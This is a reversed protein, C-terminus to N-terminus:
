ESAEPLSIQQLVAKGKGKDEERNELAKEFKVYQESHKVKLHQVVNTYHQVDKTNCGGHSVSQKCIRCLAFKTGEGVM